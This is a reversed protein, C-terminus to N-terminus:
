RSSMKKRLESFSFLRKILSGYLVLFHEFIDGTLTDLNILLQIVIIKIFTIVKVKLGYNEFFSDPSAISFKKLDVFIHAIDLRRTDIRSTFVDLFM